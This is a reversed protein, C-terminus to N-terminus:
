DFKSDSGRNETRVSNSQRNKLTQLGDYILLLATLTASLFIPWYPLFFGKLTFGAMLLIGGNISLLPILRDAFFNSSNRDNYITQWVTLGASSLLLFACGLIGFWRFERRDSETVRQEKFLQAATERSSAAAEEPLTETTTKEEYVQNTPASQYDQSEAQQSHYFSGGGARATAASTLCLQFFILGMFLLRSHHFIISSRPQPRLLGPQQDPM